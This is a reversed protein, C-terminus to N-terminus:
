RRECPESRHVQTSNEADRTHLGGRRADRRLRPTRPRCPCRGPGGPLDRQDRCRLLRCRRLAPGPFYNFPCMYRVASDTKRWRPENAYIGRQPYWYHPKATAAPSWRTSRAGAAPTPRPPTTADPDWPQGGFQGWNPGTWVQVNRNTDCQYSFIDNPNAPAAASDAPRGPTSPRSPWIRANGVLGWRIFGGADWVALRSPYVNLWIVANDICLANVGGRHPAGWYPQVAHASERFCSMYVRGSDSNMDIGNVDYAYQVNAVVGDTIPNGGVQWANPWGTGKEVFFPPAYDTIPTDALRTPDFAPDNVIDVAGMYGFKVLQYFPGGENTVWPEPQVSAGGVYNGAKAANVANDDVWGPFEDNHNNRFMSFALGLQHLNNRCNSKLAERRAKELAPMLMAALIAIIAIVVLLEILTFARRM